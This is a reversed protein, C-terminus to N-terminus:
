KKNLRRLLQSKQKPGPRVAPTMQALLYITRAAERLRVLCYPCGRELHEGIESAVGETLTGLMYMEYYEDLDHCVM